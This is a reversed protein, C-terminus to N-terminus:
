MVTVHRGNCLVCRLVARCRRERHGPKLYAFCCGRRVALNRKEMFSLGQAKQCSESNHSGECFACTVKGSKCRVLGATTLIARRGHSASETKRPRAVKGSGELNFGQIAMNIRENEVESKLFSMLSELRTEGSPLPYSVYSSRQRYIVYSTCQLYIVYSSRQWYSVYSSHQWARLVEESLCPEVLPFLM